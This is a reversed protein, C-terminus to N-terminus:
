GTGMQQTHICWCSSSHQWIDHVNYLLVFWSCLSAGLIVLLDSCFLVSLTLLMVKTFDRIGLEEIAHAQLADKAMLQRAVERATNM